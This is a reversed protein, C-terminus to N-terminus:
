YKLRSYLASCFTAKHRALLSLNGELYRCREIEVTKGDDALRSPGMLWQTVAVTVVANIWAAFRPLPESFLRRFAPPLWNPFLSVLVRKSAARLDSPSRSYRHALATVTQIVAPYGTSSPSPIHGLELQLKQLFIQTFLRNFPNSDIRTYSPPPSSPGRMLLPCRSKLTSASDPPPKSPVPPSLFAAPNAYNATTLPTM